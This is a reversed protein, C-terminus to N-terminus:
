VPHSAGAVLSFGLGFAVLLGDKPNLSHVFIALNWMSSPKQPDHQLTTTVPTSKDDSNLPLIESVANEELDSQISSEELIEKDTTKHAGQHNVMDFYTKRLEMLEVHTGEEVIRGKRM